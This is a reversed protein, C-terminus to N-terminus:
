GGAEASKEAEYEATAKEQARSFAGTFEEENSAVWAYSERPRDLQGQFHPM